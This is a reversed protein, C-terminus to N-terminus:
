VLTPRKIYKFNCKLHTSFLVYVFFKFSHALCESLNLLIKINEDNNNYINLDKLIDNFSSSENYKTGIVILADEVYILEQSSLNLPTKNPDDILSIIEQSTGQYLIQNSSSSDSFSFHGKLDNFKEINENIINPSIILTYFFAVLAYHRIFHFHSYHSELKNM